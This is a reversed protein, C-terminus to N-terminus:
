NGVQFGTDFELETLSDVKLTLIVGNKRETNLSSFNIPLAIKIMFLELITKNKM